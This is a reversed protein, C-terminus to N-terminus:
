ATWAGCGEAAPMPRTSRNTRCPPPRLTQHGHLARCAATQWPLQKSNCLDKSIPCRLLHRRPLTRALGSYGLTHQPHRPCRHRGAASPSFHMDVYGKKLMRQAHRVRRVRPVLTVGQKAAKEDPLMVNTTCHLELPSGQRQPQQNDNQISGSRQIGQSRTSYPM